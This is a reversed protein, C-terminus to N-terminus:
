GENAWSNIALQHFPNSPETSDYYYLEKSIEEAEALGRLILIYLGSPHLIRDQVIDAIVTSELVL